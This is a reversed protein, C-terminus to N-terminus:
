ENYQHRQRYTQPYFQNQVLHSYVWVLFPDEMHDPTQFNRVFLHEFISLVLFKMHFGDILERRFLLLFYFVQNQEQKVTAM